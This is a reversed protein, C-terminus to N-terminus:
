RQIRYFRIAGNVPATVRFSGPSLQTVSAGTETSYGSAVNASGLLTFATPTDSTGGSFDIQVTGDAIQISAVNPRVVTTSLNVVRVNDFIAAGSNGVSDYADCYGLMINGATFPTTNVTQLIVTKNIKLTAASGVQSIEVDVWTPTATTPLNAPSGGRSGSAPDGPAYPPSKFVQHFATAFRNSVITPGSAANTGTYLTYDGLGSADAVIAYWLGDIDVPPNMVNGATNRFWNTKNGSLNIGFLVFETTGSTSEVLYLNFRLAFDNSFSQGGPYFNIGAAGFDSGEFKNVTMKLGSTTGGSNPAPPIGDASYDYAISNPDPFFDDIANNAGFRIRWNLSTNTEFNDSFLITGTEPPLEDDLITATASGPTGVAYGQGGAVTAIVTEDEDLTSDDVPSVNFDQDVTGAPITVTAPGNFDAPSSATGAYSINATIEVNTQGRRSIRYTVHDDAIREYMTLAVTSISLEPTDD